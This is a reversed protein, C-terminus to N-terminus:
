RKNNITKNNYNYNNNNNDNASITLICIATVVKNNCKTIVTIINNNGNNLSLPSRFLLIYRLLLFCVFIFFFRKRM